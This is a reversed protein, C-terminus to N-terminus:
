KRWRRTSLGRIIEDVMRSANIKHKKIYRYVDDAVSITLNRRAM